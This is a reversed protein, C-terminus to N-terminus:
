RRAPACITFIVKELVCEPFRAALRSSKLMIDAELLSEMIRVLKEMPFKQADRLLLYLPYDKMSLLRFKGKQALTPNTRRAEALVPAFQGFTMGPKWSTRFVKFLLERATMLRRIDGSIFGLTQLPHDAVKLNEHLAPLCRAIDATRLANALDFFATEHFDSFVAAVDEASVEPRDGLYAILKNLEGVLRRLDTGSRTYMMELAESRIRKGARDLTERVRERFYEREIGIGYKERRASCEVVTGHEEFTKYIRKRKDVAPATVVLMTGEPFPSQLLEAVFEEDNRRTTSLGEEIFWAAVQTLTDRVDTQATDSLVAAPWDFGRAIDSADAGAVSLLQRFAKGASKRDGSKWADLIRRLLKGDDSRGMLLPTQDVVVVREDGFLSASFLLTSLNGVDLNTGDLVSLNTARLDPSLFATILKELEEKVLFEDGFLLYLLRKKGANREPPVPKKM